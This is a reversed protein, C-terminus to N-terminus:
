IRKAASSITALVLSSPVRIGAGGSIGYAGGEERLYQESRLLDHGLGPLQACLNCSVVSLQLRDHAGDELYPGAHGSRVRRLSRPGGRERRRGVALWCM